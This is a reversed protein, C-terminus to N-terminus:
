RDADPDTLWLYPDSSGCGCGSGYWFTVSGCCKQQCKEANQSKAPLFTPSPPNYKARYPLTTMISFRPENTKSKKMKKRTLFIRVTRQFDRKRLNSRKMETRTVWNSDKPDFRKSNRPFSFYFIHWSEHWRRRHWFYRPIKPLFSCTKQVGTQGALLYNSERYSKM